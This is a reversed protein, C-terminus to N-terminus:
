AKTLLTIIKSYHYALFGTGVAILIAALMHVKDEFEDLPLVSCTLLCSVSILMCAARYIKYKSLVTGGGLPAVISATFVNKYKYSGLAVFRDGNKVPLKNLTLGSIAHANILVDKARFTHSYIDRGSQNRGRVESKLNEVM